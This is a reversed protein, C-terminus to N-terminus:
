PPASSMPLFLTFMACTPQARATRECIAGDHNYRPLMDGSATYGYRIIITFLSYQRYPPLIPIVYIIFLTIQRPADLMATRGNKDRARDTMASTAYLREVRQRAMARPVGDPM